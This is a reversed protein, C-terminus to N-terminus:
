QVKQSIPPFKVDRDMALLGMARKTYFVVLTCDYARDVFVVIPRSSRSASVAVSKGAIALLM